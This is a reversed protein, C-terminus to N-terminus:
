SAATLTTGTLSLKYAKLGSAAPGAVLSGSSSFTSGHQTCVIHSQSSDWTLREVGEHPCKSQTAIFSSLDNSAAIRFFIVGSVIKSSGITALTSIDVSAGSNGSPSSEDDGGKSCAQFCTGTCVLALGLGLSKLFEDREM